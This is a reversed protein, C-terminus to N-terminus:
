WDHPRHWPRRPSRVRLSEGSDEGGGEEGALSEAVEGSKHVADAALRLIEAELTLPPVPAVGEVSGRQSLVLHQLELVQSDALTGAPLTRLREDLQLAALAAVGVLRGRTTLRFGALTIEFADARGIDRLMAGTVVLDVHAQMTRALQRAVSAVEWTQLLLGGLRARPGSIWAPAREFAVRFADDAFFLDVVRRLTSSAIEGRMRDLQDWLRAPEVAIAPLFREVQAHEAPLVRLPATLQVQRRGTRAYVGVQGIVQVVRGREAGEVWDRQNAWVPATDIQGTANGLTLLVYPEGTAQVREQRELVLLEDQIRAGAVLSPLQLITM